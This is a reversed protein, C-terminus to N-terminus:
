EAERGAAALELAGSVRHRISPVPDTRAVQHAVDDDLLALALAAALRRDEGPATRATERLAPLHAAAEVAGAATRTDLGPPLPVPTGQLLRGVYAAARVPMQPDDALRDLAELALPAPGVAGGLALAVERRVVPDPDAAMRAILDWCRGGAAAGAAALRVPVVPDMTLAQLAADDVVDPRHRWLEAIAERVAPAQSRAMVPLLRALDPHHIHRAVQAVLVAERGDLPMGLTLDVFTDFASEALEAVGALVVPDDDARLTQLLSPLGREPALRGFLGVAARRVLLSPDGLARRAVELLAESDLLGGVATLAATRVEPSPDGRIVQLLAGRSQEGQFARLGSILRIREGADLISRMGEALSLQADESTAAGLARLELHRATSLKRGLLRYESDDRLRQRLHERVAAEDSMEVVRAVISEQEFAGTALAAAARVPLAESRHCVTLLAVEGGPVRLLGVALAARERVRPSPDVRLLALVNEGQEALQLRSAADLAAARVTEDPDHMAAAVAGSAVSDGVRGLAAIAAARVAPEPDQRLRELTASAAPSALHGLTRIAGLKGATDRSEVLVDVLGEVRGADLHSVADVIAERMASDAGDFAHVLAPVAAEDGLRGLGVVAARRVEPSADGLLGVLEPALAAVRAEGAGHVGAVRVAPDPDAILRLFEPAADSARLLGLARAAATRVGAEPDATRERLRATVEPGGLTGLVGIAATRVAEDADSLGDLAAPLVERVGLAGLTEFAAARLGPDADRHATEILEAALDRRAARRIAGVVSSRVEPAPHLLLEALLERAGASAFKVLMEMTEPLREGRQIMEVLTAPVGLRELGVAARIRIEPDPDDLAMLLPGEARMGIQELAEVSRMRVWWAPDGLARVLQDIVEPDDFRGLTAAIRARVFPAPDTLLHELLYPIARRDGLRGLATASKARVEDELDGLGRALVPFARAARVEGLVNAAWARAPHRGPQDLFAILPDVVLAGHRSLIDAIRPALWVEVSKLSEVLPGVARPDAIRALARLAIERVDGDETRTAQVTALLTPVAKANGVRGLLEAAFARERWQRAGALKAIYKDVLGLRDYADLLWEPREATGRAQEELVAELAELDLLTDLRHFEPELLSRERAALEAVLQRYVGKRKTLRREVRDLYTGYGFWALIAVLGAGLMVSAVILILTLASM